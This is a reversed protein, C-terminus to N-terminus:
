RETASDPLPQFGQRLALTRQLPSILQSTMLQSERAPLASLRPEEELCKWAYGRFCNCLVILEETRKLPSESHALSNMGQRVLYGVSDILSFYM